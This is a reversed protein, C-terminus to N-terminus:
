PPSRRLALATWLAGAVDIAGFLWLAKPGLGLAALAAMSVGAALRVPVTLQLMPWLGQRAAQVYYAALAMATIGLVRVWVEQPPAVGFPALALAPVLLLGLGMALLYLGFAAVSRAAPHVTNEWPNFVFRAM